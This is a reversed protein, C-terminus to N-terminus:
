GSQPCMSLSRADWAVAAAIGVGLIDLAALGDCTRVLLPPDAHVFNVQWSTTLNALGVVLDGRM